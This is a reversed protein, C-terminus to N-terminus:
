SPRVFRVTRCVLKSIDVKKDRLKARAVRQAFSRTNGSATEEVFEGTVVNVFMFKYERGM